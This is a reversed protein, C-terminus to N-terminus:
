ALSPLFTKEGPDYVPIILFFALEEPLFLGFLLSQRLRLGMM